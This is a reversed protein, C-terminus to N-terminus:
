IGVVGQSDEHIESRLLPFLQCSYLIDGACIADGLIMQHLDRMFEALRAINFRDSPAPSPNPKRKHRLLDIDPLDYAPHLIIEIEDFAEM